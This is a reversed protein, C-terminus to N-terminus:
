LFAGAKNQIELKVIFLGGSGDVWIIEIRGSGYIKLRVGRIDEEM